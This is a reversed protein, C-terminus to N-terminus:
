AGTQLLDTQDPIKEKWRIWGYIAVIAFILYLLSLLEYGKTWYVGVCVLDIIIWYLWNELIKRAVMYTALLAFTSTLADIFPLSGGFYDSLLGLPYAMILGLGIIAIHWLPKRTSIKLDTVELTKGWSWWGYISMVLYYVQLGADLFLKGEWFLYLSAFVGIIGFPWCWINEKAALIVYIVSSILALWEVWSQALAATWINGILEM